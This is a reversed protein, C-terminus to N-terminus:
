HPREEVPDAAWSCGIGKGIENRTPEHPGSGEDLSGTAIANTLHSLVEEWSGQPAMENLIPWTPSTNLADLADKQSTADGRDAASFWQDFWACAVAGTVQAGLQYRDSVAASTKLSTPDFGAPVPIGQLMSQVVTSRDRPKVVSAPLAALWREVSVPKLSAVVARYAAESGLDGRIELFSAARPEVLTTLDTSDSRVFMTGRRGQVTVLVKSTQDSRDDMYSSYESAQKWFLGMEHTGDSFTMEGNDVTMEDARIVKWGPLSILLRENAEAVKVAEAAYASSGNNRLLGTGGVVLVSAAAMAMAAAVARRTRRPRSLQIVPDSENTLAPELQSTSMVDEMLESESSGLDFADVQADDFRSMARLAADLEEDTMM